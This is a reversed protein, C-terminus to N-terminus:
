NFEASAKGARSKDQFKKIQANVIPVSLRGEPNECVLGEEILRPLIRRVQRVDVGCSKAILRPDSPLSASEEQFCQLSFDMFFGREELTLGRVRASGWFAPRLWFDFRRDALHKPTPYPARSCGSQQSNKM